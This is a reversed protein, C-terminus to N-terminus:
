FISKQKTGILFSILLLVASTLMLGYGIDLHDVIVGITMTLVANTLTNFSSQVSLVSSLIEPKVERTIM